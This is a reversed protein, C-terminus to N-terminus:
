LALSLRELTELFRGQWTAVEQASLQPEPDGVQSSMYFGRSFEIQIIPTDLTGYTRTIYGGNYPKDIWVDSLPVRYVESMIKQLQLVTELRATKGAKHGLCIPPREEGRQDPSAALGYPSMSHCDLTLKVAPDAIIRQLEEHYPHYLRKLVKVVDEDSPFSHFVDKHTHTQRKVVGDPYEEGYSEPPRNLDVFTRSTAFTILHQVREKPVSCIERTLHDVDEKMCDPTAKVGPLFESPIDTGGHPISVALPLKNM